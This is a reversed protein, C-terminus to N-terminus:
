LLIQIFPLSCYMECVANVSSLTDTDKVAAVIQAEFRNRGSLKVQIEGEEDDRCPIEYAPERIGVSALMGAMNMRNQPLDTVVMQGTSNNQIITQIM